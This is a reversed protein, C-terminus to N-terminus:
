GVEEVEGSPLIIKSTGDAFRIEKCGDTRHVEVQGNPFQYVQTGDTQSVHVTQASAYFYVVTGDTDTQKVDDNIFFVTQMGQPTLEKRTGTSYLVEVLGSSYTRHVKGDAAREVRVPPAGEALVASVPAPLM